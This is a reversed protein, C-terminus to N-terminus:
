RDRNALDRPGSNYDPRPDQYDEFSLRPLIRAVHRRYRYSLPHLVDGALYLWPVPYKSVTGDNIDGYREKSYRGPNAQLAPTKERVRAEVGELWRRTLETRPKFGFGGGGMIKTHNLQMWRYRFWRLRWPQYRPHPEIGCTSVNWREVPYGVAWLNPDDALQQLGPLWSGEPKKIDTYAGGHHHMLYARFYDSRQIPTLLWYAPVLPADPLVWDPVDDDTLLVVDLGGDRLSQVCEQRVPPMPHGGFWLVFVRPKASM